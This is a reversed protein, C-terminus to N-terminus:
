LEVHEIMIPKGTVKYLELISSPDGYYADSLQIARYPNNSKDFIGIESSRFKQVVEDYKEVIGPEMAKMTSKLLPHPRWLLVVEDKYQKFLEIVRDIKEIYAGGYYLMTSVGTNYFIVKRKSGDERCIVKSWDAPIELDEPKPHKVRYVKPSEQVQIIKEYKARGEAGFRSQLIRLYAERMTESQILIKHANLVAPVLVYHSLLEMQEMNTLDPDELVYYPIYVLEDTCERLKSSYYDPHVTTVLNKDDYPNHIYIADPHKEELNYADYRVVPVDEPYQDGEYVFNTAMGEENKEYYPIPIVVAHVTPDDAMKRWESELSDWMSVKYPLFVVERTEPLEQVLRRVRAVSEELGAVGGEGNSLQYLLECYHELEAVADTGEGESTEIVGGLAIATNQCAELVQRLTEYEEMSVCTSVMQHAQELNRILQECQGRVQKRM